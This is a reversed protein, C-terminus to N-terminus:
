DIFEIVDQSVEVGVACIKDLEVILRKVKSGKVTLLRGEYGELEGSVVRIRHRCMAETIEGPAYYKPLGSVKVAKIFRQMEAEGIMMPCRYGGGKVYRYQLTRIRGVVEDIEARYAHIFLLDHMYPVTECFPKGKSVKCVSKMPTFVELKEGELAKYAPMKANPRTLDRMVYWGEGSEEKLIAM